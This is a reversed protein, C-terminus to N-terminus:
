IGISSRLRIFLDNLLRAEESNTTMSNLAREIEDLRWLKSEVENENHGSFFPTTQNKEANGNNINKFGESTDITPTTITSDFPRLRPPVRDNNPEHTRLKPIQFISQPKSKYVEKAKNIVPLIAVKLLDRSQKPLSVQMKSINIKFEEDLETSFDMAIRAYKTHEDKTRLRNWGGNQILRNARYIYFGQQSNWDNIGAAKKWANQSSFKEKTPLVYPKIYFYSQEGHFLIPVPQEPLRITNEEQLCYPDWPEIENGNIFISLKREGVKGELFRHFVLSLYEETEHCLTLLRNSSILDVNESLNIVRDLNQWIVITGSDGQIKGNIHMGFTQEDPAIVEWSNTRIVHDIDWCYSNLSSCGSFKSAITLKRCQSISATKLGLGFKGLNDNNDYEKESGFRLAEILNERAMGIGNDVIRVYSQEELFHIDINIRTAGASISNDVVDAIATPFDYGVDRLSQILRSAGPIIEQKPITMM